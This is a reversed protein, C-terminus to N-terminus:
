VNYAHRGLTMAGNGPTVAGTALSNTANDAAQAIQGSGHAQKHQTELAQYLAKMDLTVKGGVEKLVKQDLGNQYDNANLLSGYSGISNSLLGRKDMNTIFGGQQPNGSVNIPQIGLKAMPGDPNPHPDKAANCITTMLEGIKSLSKLMPNKEMQHQNHWGAFTNPTQVSQANPLQYMDGYGAENMKLFDKFKSM